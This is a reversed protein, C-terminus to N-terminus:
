VAPSVKHRYPYHIVNAHLTQSMVHNYIIIQYARARTHTHTYTPSSDTKTYRFKLSERVGQEQFYHHYERFHDFCNGPNSSPVVSCSAPHWITYQSMCDMPPPPQTFSFIQHKRIWAHATTQWLIHPEKKSTPRDLPIPLLGSTFSSIALDATYKHSLM